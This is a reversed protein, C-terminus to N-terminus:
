PARWRLEGPGNLRVLLLGISRLGAALGARRPLGRPRIRVVSTAGVVTAV